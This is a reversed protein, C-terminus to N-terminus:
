TVLNTSNKGPTQDELTLLKQVRLGYLFRRHYEHDAYIVSHGYHSIKPGPILSIM